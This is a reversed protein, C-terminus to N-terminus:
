LEDNRLGGRHSSADAKSRLRSVGKSVPTANLAPHRARPIQLEDDIVRYAPGRNVAHARDPPQGSTLRPQAADRRGDQRGPRRVGPHSPPPMNLAEPRRGRRRAPGCHADARESRANREPTGATARNPREDITSM